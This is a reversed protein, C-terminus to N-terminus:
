QKNIEKGLFVGKKKKPLDDIFLTSAPFPSKLPDDTEVFGLASHHHDPNLPPLTEIQLPLSPNELKM